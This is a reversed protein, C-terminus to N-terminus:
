RLPAAQARRVTGSDMGVPRGLINDLWGPLQYEQRSAPSQQEAPGAIGVIWQKVSPASWDVLGLHSAVVRGAKDIVYTSPFGKVEYVAENAENLVFYGLFRGRVFNELVPQRDDPKSAYVLESGPESQLKVSAPSDWFNVCLVKLDPRNIQRVLRKLHRKEQACYRCDKRWFNLLVVSGRLDSLSFVGGDLSGMKLDSAAPPNSFIQFQGDGPGNSAQVFDPFVHLAAATFFMTSLLM